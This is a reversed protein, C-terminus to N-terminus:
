RLSIITSQENLRLVFESSETSEDMNDATATQASLIHDSVLFAHVERMYARTYREIERIHIGSCDGKGSYRGNTLWVRDAVIFSTKNVRMIYVKTTKYIEQDDFDRHHTGILWHYDEILRSPIESEPPPLGGALRVRNSIIHRSSGTHLDMNPVLGNVQLKRKSGRM